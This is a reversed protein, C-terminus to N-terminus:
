RGTSRTAIMALVADLVQDVAAHRYAWREEDKPRAIVMTANAEFLLVAGDPALAFDIGAYDLGLTDRINELARM